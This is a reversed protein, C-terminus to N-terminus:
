SPTSAEVAAVFRDHASSFLRDSRVYTLDNRLRRLLEPQPKSQIIDRVEQIQQVYTGFARTNHKNDALISAENDPNEHYLAEAILLQLKFTTGGLELVKDLPLGVKRVTEIFAFNMLHPLALTTAVLQDHDELNTRIIRAGKKALVSLLIKAPPCKPPEQAVIISKGTLSTTGPGFMPHISMIQAGYRTLSQITKRLPQKVSSIEVILITRSVHSTVRRLLSKTARTPTALLVIESLQAAQTPDKVFRFGRKRSRRAAYMKKDSIVIDYGNESLFNAFWAGMRGSGGIVAVVAM